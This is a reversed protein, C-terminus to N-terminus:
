DSCLLGAQPNPPQFGAWAAKGLGQMRAFPQPGGSPASRQLEYLPALCVSSKTSFKTFFFFFFGGQFGLQPGVSDFCVAHALM